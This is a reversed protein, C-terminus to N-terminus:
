KKVTILQGTKECVSELKSMLGITFSAIADTEEKQPNYGEHLVKVRMRRFHTTMEPMDIQSLRKVEAQFAEYKQNFGFEKTQFKSNLLKEVNNQNLDISLKEAVLKISVEQLQLACTSISWNDDLGLFHASEILIKTSEVKTQKAPLFIDNFFDNALADVREKLSIREAVRKNTEFLVAQFRSDINRYFAQTVGIQKAIPLIEIKWREFMDDVKFKFEDDSITKSNRKNITQKLNQLERYFSEVKESM